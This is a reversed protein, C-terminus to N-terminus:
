VGARTDCARPDYVNSNATGMEYTENYQYNYGRSWCEQPTYTTEVNRDMSRSAWMSPKRNAAIKASRPLDPM